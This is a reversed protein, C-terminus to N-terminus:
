EFRYGFQQIDRSYLEGVVDIMDTSTYAEQYPRGEGTQNVRPLNIPSQLHSEVKLMDEYMSEFRGVFDVILNGMSDEVFPYQPQFVFDVRKMAKKSLWEFLFREFTAFEPIQYSGPIAMGM